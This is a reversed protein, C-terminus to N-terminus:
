CVAMGLTHGSRNCVKTDVEKCRSGYRLCVGGSFITYPSRPSLVCSTGRASRALFMLPPFPSPFVLRVKPSGADGNLESLKETIADSSKKILKNVQFRLFYKM